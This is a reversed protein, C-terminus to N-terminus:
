FDRQVNYYNKSKWSLLFPTLPNGKSFSFELEWLIKPAHILWSLFIPTAESFPLFRSRARKVSKRRRLHSVSCCYSTYLLGNHQRHMAFRRLPFPDFSEATLERPERTTFTRLSAPRLYDRQICESSAVQKVLLKPKLARVIFIVALNVKWLSRSDHSFRACWM